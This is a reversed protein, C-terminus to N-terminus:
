SIRILASTPNNAPSQVLFTNIATKDAGFDLVAVAANGASANYILAGRATFSAPSWLVNDFNLYAVGNSFLATVNTLIEGGATYGTGVVEGTPTYLLTTPGINAAGTYLAMKLTSAALAQLPALKFSDVVTQTITM